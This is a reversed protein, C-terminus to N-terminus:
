TIRLGIEFTGGYGHAEQTLQLLLQRGGSRFIGDRDNTIRRPRKIAYPPQAHVQATLADNFYLQSTWAFGRPAAPDTRIKVHIHVTRGSYWGPYITIFQASGRADSLQSGRLFKKGRTDFLANLDPVDSYRGRADCHWVDIVAGQLPTCTDGVIRSLHFALRLLVGEQVSGDSPDSRIDSRNLQADVFYPGETQEPRVVCAPTM